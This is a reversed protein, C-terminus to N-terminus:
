EENEAVSRRFRKITGRRKKTDVRKTKSATSPHTSHRVKPSELAKGVLVVFRQEAELRNREQSRYRRSVLTLVGSQSMRAGALRVLRVKIVESLSSTNRVDFRLQAATSVKNVNQGGPGSSRVFSFDLEEDPITIEANIRM